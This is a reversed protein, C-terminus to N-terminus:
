CNEEPSLQSKSSIKGKCGLARITVARSGARASSIRKVASISWPRTKRPSKKSSNHPRGSEEDDSNHNDVEIAFNQFYVALKQTADCIHGTSTWIEPMGNYGQSLLGEVITDEDLGYLSANSQRFSYATEMAALQIDNAESILRARYALNMPRRDEVSEAYLLSLAGSTWPILNELRWVDHVLWHRVADTEHHDPQNETKEEESICEVIEDLLIKEGEPINKPIKEYIRWVATAAAMKEAEWLLKWRTIKNLPQYYKRLHKNLDALAIARRQLQQEMSPGAAPLHKSSSDTISRSIRLAADQVEETAFKIESRGSFELLSHQSGYFVAQELKTEATITARDVSTLGDEMPGVSVKIVGYGQVMITCGSNRQGKEPIDAACGVVRYDKGKRFDIVDQFPDPVRRAEAQLQSSPSEQIEELSVLIISKEFMIYATQGPDPVLLQPKFPSELSIPTTYCSIPHVVLIDVADDVIDLVHLNYRSENNNSIATLVLLRTASKSTLSTVEQGTVVAPLFAFDLVKLIQSDSDCPFAGTDRISELLKPKADVEHKMSHAGNWNLEWLQLVGKTTGVVCQRQGRQVSSGVRVAALDKLWGAGGFINRLSSFIGGAQASSSRLLESNISAKGQPDAFTLHVVKGSSITILFGQPEAEIINTIQEGYSLGTVIGHIAQQKQRGLDVSAASSLSEWYTVQGSVPMAILLGPEPSSPVLVGLPLPQNADEAVHLLRIVIPRSSEAANLGQKYRWILAQRHTTALAYGLSPAFEGRWTEFSQHQQLQIPTTPLRTVVYTDNKTLEVTGDGRSGRREKDSVRSTRNSVALSTLHEGTGGHIGGKQVFGNAAPPNSGSLFHGNVSKTPLPEFTEATLGSRKLKKSLQRVAVSDDSGTRQRRRPNRLATSAPAITNTSFM